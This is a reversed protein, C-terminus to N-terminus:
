NVINSLSKGTLEKAKIYMKNVGEILEQKRRDFEQPTIQNKFALACYVEYEAQAQMIALMLMREAGSINNPVRLTVEVESVESEYQRINITKKFSIRLSDCNDENDGLSCDLIDDMNLKDKNGKILKDVIKNTDM